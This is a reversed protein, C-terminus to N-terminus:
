CWCHTAAVFIHYKALKNIFIRKLNQKVHCRGQSDSESQASVSRGHLRPWAASSGGFRTQFSM